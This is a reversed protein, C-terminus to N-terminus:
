LEVKYLRSISLRSLYGVFLESFRNCLYIRHISKLLSYKIKIIATFKIIHLYLIRGLKKYFACTTLLNRPGSLPNEVERVTM